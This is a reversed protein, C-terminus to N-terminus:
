HRGRRARSAAARRRAPAAGALCRSVCDELQHRLRNIRVRLGRITLGEAESLQQRLASPDPCPQYYALFLEYQGRALRGLCASLCRARREHLLREHLDSEVDEPGRLQAARPLDPLAVERRMRRTSEQRVYQAVGWCFGVADAVDERALRRAVRDLTQDALDEAPGCRNWEFFKILKRRLGEYKRGAAERDADLRELLFEFDDQRLSPKSEDTATRRSDPM